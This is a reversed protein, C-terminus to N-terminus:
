KCLGSGERSRFLNIEAPYLQICIGFTLEVCLEWGILAECLQRLIM